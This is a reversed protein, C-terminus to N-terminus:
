LTRVEKSKGYREDDKMSERGEKFRKHWDSFSARNMCSSGFTTQLMGYTHTDNEGLKFCLKIAYRGRFHGWTWIANKFNVQQSLWAKTPPIGTGATATWKFTFDYFNTLWRMLHIAIVYLISLKFFQDTMEYSTYCYCVSNSLKLHRYM